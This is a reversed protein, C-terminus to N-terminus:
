DDRAEKVPSFKRARERLIELAREEDGLWLALKAANEYGEAELEAATRKYRKLGEFLM